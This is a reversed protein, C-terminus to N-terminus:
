SARIRKTTPFDPWAGALNRVSGPWKAEAYALAQNALADLKGARADREIQADWADADFAEFWVRREALEAPTLDRIRNEIQEVRSM